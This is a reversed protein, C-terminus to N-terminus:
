ESTSYINQCKEKFWRKFCPYSLGRSAEPLENWLRPSQYLFSSLVNALRGRPPNTRPLLSYRTEYNNANDIFFDAVPCPLTESERRYMLRLNEFEFLDDLKLLRTEVFMSNSSYSYNRKTIARLAQKQKQIIPKLKTKTASGWLLVGFQLHSQFLSYYIKIQVNKSFLNKCMRLMYLKSSLTNNLEHIHKGWDLHIDVTLGLFKTEHVFPIIKDCLKLPNLQETLPVSKNRFLMCKTKTSNLCLGNATYWDSIVDLDSELNTVLQTQSNGTVYLTADDAFTIIKSHKLCSYIDNTYIIFLLPGLVSGQPVGTVSDIEISMVDAFFVTQKRGELYSKFWKLVTGRIGYYKLKSLLIDHSLSDFAKSIDLFSALSSQGRDFGLSVNGVFETVADTTSHHKRYGYQSPYLLDNADLFNILNQHVIKELIKSLSSLLSIPRYNKILSDEGDKFIPVIKSNKFDKPFEGTRLSKNIIISLPLALSSALAKILKSSLDDLGSSWKSPLLKIAKLVMPATAPEFVLTHLPSLRTKELYTQYGFKSAPLSESVSLGVNAYFSNFNNAIEKPDTVKRNNILFASNANTKKRTNRNTIEDIIKWLVKPNKKNKEILAKFHESKAERKKRNLENRLKRYAKFEESKKGALIARKYLKYMDNSEQVLSHTMWDTKLKVKCVVKKEPCHKDMAEYIEHKLHQVSENLTMNSMTTWDCAGLANAVEQFKTDTWPRYFFEPSETPLNKVKKKTSFSLKVVCPFHDSLDTAIISPQIHPLFNASVYINDILTSSMNSIRTPRMITPCLGFSANLNLTERATHLNQLKLYDINQDTGIICSDAGQRLREYTEQLLLLYEREPTNPLRYIEGLILIRPGVTVECFVTEYSGEEFTSLEKRLHCQYKNSIYIRVGGWKKSKRHMDFCQYGELAYFGFNVDTLHTECILIADVEQNANKYTTLLIKLNEFKSPLSQINIHIVTFDAMDQQKNVIKEIEDLFVYPSDIKMDLDLPTEALLDVFRESDLRGISASSTVPPSLPCTVGAESSVTASLVLFCGFCRRDLGGVSM